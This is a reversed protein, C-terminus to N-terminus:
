CFAFTTARERGGREPGKKRRKALNNITCLHPTRWASSISAKLVTESSTGPDDAFQPIEKQLRSSRKLTRCLFKIWLQSTRVTEQLYNLYLPVHKLCCNHPYQLFKMTKSSGEPSPQEPVPLSHRWRQPHSTFQYLNTNCPLPQSSQPALLTCSLLPFDIFSSIYMPQNWKQAKSTSQWRIRIYEKGM